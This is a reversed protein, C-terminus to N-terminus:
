WSRGPSDASSSGPPTGSRVPSARDPWTAADRQQLHGVLPDLHRAPHGRHPRRLCDLTRQEALHDRLHVRRRRGARGPRDQDGRLDASYGTIASPRRPATTPPTPTPRRPPWRRRTSTTASPRPTSCLNVMEIVIEEGPDFDGLTCELEGTVLAICFFDPNGPVTCTTTGDPQLACEVTRATSPSPVRGRTSGSSSISSPSM